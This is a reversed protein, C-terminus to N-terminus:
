LDIERDQDEEDSHRVPVRQNKEDYTFRARGDVKHVLVEQFSWGKEGRVAIFDVDVAVDPEGEEGRQFFGACLSYRGRGLPRLTGPLPKDLTLEWAGDEEEDWVHFTGDELDLRSAVYDQVAAGFEEGLSTKKPSKPAPAEAAAKPAAEQPRAAFAGAAGSLVVLLIVKM